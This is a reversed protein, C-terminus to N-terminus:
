HDTLEIYANEDYCNFVLLLRQSCKVTLKSDKYIDNDDSVM